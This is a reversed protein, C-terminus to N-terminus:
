NLSALKELYEHSREAAPEDHSPTAVAVPVQQLVARWVMVWGFPSMVPCGCMVVSSVVQTSSATGAYSAIRPNLSM